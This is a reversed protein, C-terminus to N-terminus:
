RKIKGTETEGICPVFRIELPAKYREMNNKCHSFLEKANLTVDEKLVVDAVIIDGIRPDPYGHVRAKLVAPHTEFVAEIEEPFVKFGAVNLQSAKRGKLFLCGHRILGVDGSHFYGETDIAHKNKEPVVYGSFLGSSKICVEGTEGEPLNHGSENVIRLKFGPAAPGVADPFVPADLTNICVLGAEIIGYAQRLPLDFRGEFSEATMAPLAQGTSIAWRLRSLTRNSSASALMKFQWPSGYLMTAEHAHAMELVASPATNSALAVTAGAKLYALISSAFHHSTAMTWIVTDNDSLGFAAIASDIRAGICEHSLMVGKSAGTTGSTPRIFAIQRAAEPFDGAVDAPTFVPGRPGHGLLLEAMCCQLHVTKEHDTANPPLAILTHGNLMVALALVIDDVTNALPMGVRAPASTATRLAEATDCVKRGLNEYELIQGDRIIAPRRGHRASGDLITEVINM